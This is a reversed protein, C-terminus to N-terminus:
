VRASSRTTGGFVRLSFVSLRHEERGERGEREERGERCHPEAGGVRSGM